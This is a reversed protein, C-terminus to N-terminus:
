PGHSTGMGTRQPSATSFQKAAPAIWKTYPESDWAGALWLRVWSTARPIRYRARSLIAGTPEQDSAICWPKREAPISRSYHETRTLGVVRHQESSIAPLM